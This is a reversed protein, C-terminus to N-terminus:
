RVTGCLGTTRRALPQYTEQTFRPPLANCAGTPYETGNDPNEVVVSCFFVRKTVPNQALRKWFSPKEEGTALPVTQKRPSALLAMVATPILRRSVATPYRSRLPFSLHHYPVSPLLVCNWCTSDLIFGLNLKTLKSKNQSSIQVNHSGVDGLSTITQGKNTLHAFDSADSVHDHRGSRGCGGIM